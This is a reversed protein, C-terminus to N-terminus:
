GDAEDVDRRAKMLTDLVIDSSSVELKERFAGIDVHNGAMQLIASKGPCKVRIGNPGIDFDLLEATDPWQARARRKIWAADMEQERYEREQHYAIEEALEELIHLLAKTEIGTKKSTGRITRTQLYAQVVEDKDYEATM